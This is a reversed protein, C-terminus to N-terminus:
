FKNRGVIFVEFACNKLGQGADVLAIDFSSLGKAGIMGIMYRWGDTAYPTCQIIAYYQNHGLNHSITYNGDSTRRTSATCGNGWSNELTGWANVRGAWLVGPANWIEGNRQGFVHSGFSRISYASGANAILSLCVNNTGYSQISLGENGYGDSAADLRMAMMTSSKGGIRLYRNNSATIEIKASLDNNILSYGSIDKSITFGGVVAGETLVMSGGKLMNNEIVMGGIRAGDKVTLRGTTIDLSEIAKATVLAAQVNAVNLKDATITGGAIKDATISLASIRAANLFGTNIKGADLNAIKANTITGDGINATGFVVNTATIQQAVLTGTYVGNSDIYTTRDNAMTDFVTAYAVEVNFAVDSGVFYFYMGSSFTGTGSCKVRYVYETYTGTGINPTLWESIPNDGSANSAYNITYGKPINAIIRAIFECHRYTQTGFYFGGLGPSTSGGGLYRYRMYYGSPGPVGDPKVLREWISTSGGSNNYRNTSNASTRFFPDAYKMVGNMYSSAIADGKDGKDGKGGTPGIPGVPGVQGTAGTTGTAGIPGIPGTPGVAGTDGKVKTWTYASFTMSDAQTFDVYQGIYQGPIEGNNATFTTGNDSYKIHLYSTQGNAGAPGAIGNTGAPGQSGKFQAWTYSTYATPATSSGTVAIGIYTNPTTVMPNGNANASYRVHLFQSTGPIGQSGTPGTAGTAGTAGTPGVAGTAGTDGKVKTWTYAGFVTSDVQEFDAYQGIWAGPTEGNNATFTTGNDSYKIHLYSTRGDAGAPGAIGNTGAPGQSGKFQAWVYSTYSTPATASATVATGIYTSPTTIMPNGNAATSYRVHFFQSTGPIGQSGTHGTAGTPGVAGTAGTAGTDGKSISKLWDTANDGPVQTTFSEAICIWTSGNHTVEDYYYYKGVVWDGKFVPVPVETAGDASLVRISGTAYINRLYASHGTMDIGFLKLNSLDGLQMMVMDKTIEWNNVGSLYRQYTRTTYASTQREKDTFNGYAVFHMAKQPHFDYGTRLTYKYKGEEEIKEVIRFYATQFGTNNNFKAKCIDDIAIAALEGPELKMTIIRNATDVEAIIGGGPASWQEGSVVTVRNYRLEPVELFDRLRLSGADIHGKKNIAWGILKEVYDFSSLDGSFTADKAIIRELAELLNFEGKAGKVKDTATVNTANVQVADVLKSSITELVRLYDIDAGGTVNLGKKLKALEEAILSDVTLGSRIEAGGLLKLLFDTQDPGTKSLFLKKLEENDNDLLELLGMLVRGVREATNEGASSANRVQLALKKLVEATDSMM